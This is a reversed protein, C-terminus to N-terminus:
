NDSELWKTKHINPKSGYKPLQLDEIKKKKLVWNLVNAITIGIKIGTFSGPGPNAEIDSIQNINLNNNQLINKIETVIDIDGERRDLEKKGKFLIVSKKYRQTTDIYLRHM